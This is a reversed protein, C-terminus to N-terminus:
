LYRGYGPDIQGVARPGVFRMVLRRAPAGDVQAVAVLREISGHVDSRLRRHELQEACDAELLDLDAERRRRLGSKSKM